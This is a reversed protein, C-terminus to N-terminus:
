DNKDEKQTCDDNIFEWGYGCNCFGYKKALYNGIAEELDEWIFDPLEEFDIIVEKPLRERDSADDCDWEIEGLKIKNM